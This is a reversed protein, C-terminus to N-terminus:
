PFGGSMGASARAETSSSATWGIFDLLTYKYICRLNGCGRAAAKAGTEARQRQKPRRSNEAVSVASSRWGATQSERRLAM